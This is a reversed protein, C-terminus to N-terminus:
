KGFFSSLHATVQALTTVDLINPKDTTVGLHGRRLPWGLAASTSQRRPNGLPLEISVLQLLQLADVRVVVLAIRVCRSGTTQTVSEDCGVVGTATNVMAAQLVMGKLVHGRLWLEDVWRLLTESVLHALHLVNDVMLIQSQGRLGTRAVGRSLGFRLFSPSLVLRDVQKM